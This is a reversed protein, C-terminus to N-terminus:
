LFEKEVNCCAVAILLGATLRLLIVKLSSTSFTSSEVVDGRLNEGSTGVAGGMGPTAIAPFGFPSGCDASALHFKGELVTRLGLGPLSNSDALTIPM